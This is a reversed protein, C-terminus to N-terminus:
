EVTSGTQSPMLTAITSVSKYYGHIALANYNYAASGPESCANETMPLIEVSCDQLSLSAHM